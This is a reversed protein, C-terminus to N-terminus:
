AIFVTKSTGFPYGRSKSVANEPTDGRFEEDFPGKLSHPEFAGIARKDAQSKQTQKLSGSLSHNSVREAKAKRANKSFNDIAWDVLAPRKIQKRLARRGALDFGVIHFTDIGIDIGVSMLDDFNLDVAAIGVKARDPLFLM